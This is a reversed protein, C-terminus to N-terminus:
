EKWPDSTVPAGAPATSPQRAADLLARVEADTTQDFDLYWAGVGDLPEPEIVCVCEDAIREVAACADPSGVPAAAIIRAPAQERLATVAAAMSLGTALGDDVLIVTRGRVALRPVSGRYTRERRELERREVATVHEVEEPRIGMMRITVENLLRVGGTAIAGMALESHWPVGLKRVIFVDLPVGLTRAVEYAVPVGGRPLALVVVDDRGALHRLRGALERGAERRNRFAKVM